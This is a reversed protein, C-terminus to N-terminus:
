RNPRRVSFRPALPRCSQDENYVLEIANLEIHAVAHLLAARGERTFPSRRKLAAPSVLAPRPLRGPLVAQTHLVAETDVSDTPAPHLARAAAAKARPEPM